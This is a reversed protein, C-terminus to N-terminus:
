LVVLAIRLCKNSRGQSAHGVVKITGVERSNAVHTGGNAQLDLGTIDITWVERIPDEPRV